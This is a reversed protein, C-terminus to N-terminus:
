RKEYIKRFVGELDVGGDALGAVDVGAHGHERKLVPHHGGHVVASLCGVAVVLPNLDEAGLHTRDM